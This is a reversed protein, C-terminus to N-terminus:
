PAALFETVTVAKVQDQGEEGPEKDKRCASVLAAVAMFSLLLQKTKM